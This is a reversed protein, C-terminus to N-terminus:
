RVVAINFLSSGGAAMLSLWLPMYLEPGGATEIGGLDVIGEPQWGIELLLARVQQKAATDRGSLFVCHTGPLRAPAMMVAANVTNLAKVVRAAPFAAQLQAGVSGEPPLAVRPPGGQSFDLANAVDVVVKGALHEEGAARLAALSHLGSTGNVLAEGYAAAQAFTGNSAADGAGRAWALAAPNDASRSGMCVEHGLEVLRSAITQGVSGTGLVGYRM